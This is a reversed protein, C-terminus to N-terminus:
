DSGPTTKQPSYESPSKGFKERFCKSFYSLNNFGVQYAIDAVNGARQKLLSAARELRTNRILENPTFGTLSKLKRYLQINSMAAERALVDVSFSSDGIYQEIVTMVKKVFRDEMSDVDIESPMLLLQRSYKQQLNRRITILNVVRTVLEDQSFPKTIYDDAGTRLGELKTSHDAKATLLIIPIHSTKEDAKLKKCLEIGDMGPMMLDTVVLDPIQELAKQYGDLGDPSEVINYKDSLCSRLYYRLDANDEVILLKPMSPGADIEDVDELADAIVATQDQSLEEAPVLALEDSTLHDKGLPLHITFCTGEGIISEVVISGHHLEVLEKVLALGIGSGEYQRTTSSDVQYFRDFIKPLDNEKIGIGTDKLIIEVSGSPFQRDVTRKTIILHITGNAATFKFANSLLNTIIKEVKEGDAYLDVAETADIQFTINRSDAMSAFQSSVREILQNLNLQRSQLKLSGSELRSLDLLQNVLTLLRSANSRMISLEKKDSADTAKSLRNEIPGLLLTLPTRFEHSINAFFRSKLADVQKFLDEQTKKARRVIRYQKTLVIIGLVAMLLIGAILYQITRTRQIIVKNISAEQELTEIKDTERSQEFDNQLRIMETSNIERLLSDRLQSFKRQYDFAKKFDGLGYYADALGSNASAIFTDMLNAAKASELSLEYYKIAQRFKKLQLYIDGMDRYPTAPNSYAGGFKKGADIALGKYRLSKDLNRDPNDFAFYVVGLNSYAIPLFFQKNHKEALSIAQLMIREAEIFNRTSLHLNGIDILMGIESDTDKAERYIALAENFFYLMSDQDAKSKTIVFKHRFTFGLEVSLGTEFEKKNATRSLKLARRYNRLADPIDTISGASEARLRHNKGLYLYLAILKEQDGSDGLLSFCQIFHEMASKYAAKDQFARGLAFHSRMIGNSYDIDEALALARKGYNVASDARQDELFAHSLQVLSNIQLTDRQSSVASKLSDIKTSQPSAKHSLVILFVLVVHRTFCNYM